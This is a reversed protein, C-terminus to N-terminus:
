LGQYDLKACEGLGIQLEVKTGRYLDTEAANAAIVMACHHTHGESLLKSHIYVDKEGSRMRTIARTLVEWSYLCHVVHYSQWTYARLNDLTWLEDLPVPSTHDWERFWHLFGTGTLNAVETSPSLAEQAATANYCPAPIWAGSMIDLTCNRAVADAYSEGCNFSVEDTQPPPALPSGHLQPPTILQRQAPSTGMYLSLSVALASLAILVLLLLMYRSEAKQHIWRSVRAKASTDTQWRLRVPTTHMIGATEDKTNHQAEM